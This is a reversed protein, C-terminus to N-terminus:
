MVKCARELAGSFWLRALSAESRLPPQLLKNPCPLLQCSGQHLAWKVTNPFTYTIKFLHQFWPATLFFM